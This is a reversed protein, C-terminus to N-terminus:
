PLSNLIDELPIPLEQISALPAQSLADYLAPLYRSNRITIRVCTGDFQNTPILRVELVGPHSRLKRLLDYRMGEVWADVVRVAGTAHAIENKTGMCVLALKHLLLIPVDLSEAIEVNRTSICVTRGFFITSLLAKMEGAGIVDAVDDLLIIPAESLAAKALYVKVKETTSIHQINKKMIHQIGLIESIEGIRSPLNQIQEELGFDSLMDFVIEHFLDNSYVSVYGAASGSTRVANKGNVLVSGTEPVIAGSLLKLLTTKGSAASGFLVVQSGHDLSFSIDKLVPEDYSAHVHRFEVFAGEM